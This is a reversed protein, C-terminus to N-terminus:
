VVAGVEELIEGGQTLKAKGFIRTERARDGPEEALL